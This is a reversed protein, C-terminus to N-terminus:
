GKNKEQWEQLLKPAANTLKFRGKIQDSDEGGQEYLKQALESVQSENSFDVGPFRNQTPEQYLLSWLKDWMGGPQLQRLKNPINLWSTHWVSPLLSYIQNMAKAFEEPAQHRMMELQRNQLYFGTHPLMENTMPNVYECGDSLGKKAYVKGTEENTLRAHANIGHTISPNNRSMRWKWTHRRLTAHELDGWLEVVPLHLIDVHKPFRKTLTKWNDYDKEHAIEDLDFQVLMDKTCLARSFAKQSGDISPEEMDFPNQYLVIREDEEAMEQLKEYTGDESCGDLVVVEDCFGLFSKISEEFPIGLNMCNYATTYGSIKDTVRQYEFNKNRRLKM